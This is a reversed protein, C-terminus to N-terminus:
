KLLERQRKDWLEPWLEECTLWEYGSWDGIEISPLYRVPVQYKRLGGDWLSCFVQIICLFPFLPWWLWGKIKRTLIYKHGLLESDKSLINVKGLIYCCRNNYRDYLLHQADQPTLRVKGIAEIM